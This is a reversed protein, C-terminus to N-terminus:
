GTTQFQLNLTQSKQKEQKSANVIGVKGAQFHAGVSLPKMFM